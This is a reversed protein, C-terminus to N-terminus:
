SQMRTSVRSCGRVSCRVFSGTRKECVQCRYRNGGLLGLCESPPLVFQVFTRLYSEIRYNSDKAFVSGQLHYVVGRLLLGCRKHIWLGDTTLVLYGDSDGCLLCHESPQQYSSYSRISSSLSVSRSAISRSTSIKGHVEMGQGQLCRLCVFDICSDRKDGMRCKINQWELLPEYDNMDFCVDHISCGCVCCM